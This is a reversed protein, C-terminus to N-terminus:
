FKPRNRFFVAKILQYSLGRSIIGTDDYTFPPWNSEEAFHVTYQEKSDAVAPQSWPSILLLFAILFSALQRM